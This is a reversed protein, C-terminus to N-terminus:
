SALAPTSLELVHASRWVLRVRRGRAALADMSTTTLNQETVHLEAGADLAVLYRTDSGVYQVDRITGDASMEGEAVVAARDAAADLEALRIKEPRVTFTGERGIVAVAAAGDLLNSTGVFGAVFRTSPHEYVEAPTGVQEIRGHNFVAIRDSMTLAEEQDHTVFIFTIGVDRQITKLEVQMEERLKLDLAGLPEDLLLVKPRNVLARALAVRQRQGGSLQSPKRKEYGGLRVRELADTVLRRREAKKVKKVMLGYGVNQEVTMHPFLAYDQFVTNVDRDFPPRHTVDVGQLLIAGATPLEFGAIMRLMTTKGSGSPGLLAFFEGDVIDLDIDDVAVVDGFTKTVGVLRVAPTAARADTVSHEGQEADSPLSFRRQIVDPSRYVWGSLREVITGATLWRRCPGAPPGGSPARAHQRLHEPQARLVLPRPARGIGDGRHVAADRHPRPHRPPGGAARARAPLGHRLDGLRTPSRTGDVFVVEAGEFHDIAPKMVVRGAKLAKVFGDDIAATVNDKAVRAFPGLEAKPYGYSTLDGFVLRQLVRFNADQVREPLYRGTLAVPHLPLGLLRAPAINMGSRASLWLRGADSAVLHNLLDVGSNGPGVVLVDQGGVDAVSRFDGAHVLQGPFSDVGPWTPQVPQLDPGTAVVAHDAEIDGNNTALLWGGDRRDIRFIETGFRVRMSAAYRELYAVYDDRGPFPGYRRPMRRGPQHSFSRHTNLRLHDHRGRWSTAVSPGRELVLPDIGKRRLEYAAALGAPGAGIIAVREVM